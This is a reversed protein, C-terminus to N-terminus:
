QLRRPSALQVSIETRNGTNNKKGTFKQVAVYKVMKHVYIDLAVYWPM